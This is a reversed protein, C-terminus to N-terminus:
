LGFKSRDFRTGTGSARLSSAKSKATIPTVNDPAGQAGVPAFTGGPPSTNVSTAPPGSATAYPITGGPTAAAPPTVTAPPAPPAPPQGRPVQKSQKCSECCAEGAGVHACGPKGAGLVGATTSGPSSQGYGLKGSSGPQVVVDVLTKGAAAAAMNQAALQAPFMKFGLQKKGLLMALSDTSVKAVAIGTDTFGWGQFMAAWKKHGAKNLFHAATLPVGINAIAWLIRFAGAHKFQKWVPLSQASLMYVGGPGPQDMLVGNATQLNGRNSILADGVVLLIGGVAVGGVTAASEGWGTIPNRRKGKKKKGKKHKKTEAAMLVRAREVARDRAKNAAEVEKDRKAVLAELKNLLRGKEAGEAKAIKLKQAEFKAAYRAEISAIMERNKRIADNVDPAKRKKKGGGRKKTKKPERAATSKKAKKAGKKKGGTKKAKKASAKKAKKSKKAAKPKSKKGKKKWAKAFAKYATKSGGKFTKLYRQYASTKKRKPKSGSKKQKPM